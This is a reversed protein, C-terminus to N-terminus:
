LAEGTATGSMDKFEQKIKVFVVMSAQQLLSSLKTKEEAPITTWNKASMGSELAVKWTRVGYKYGVGAFPNDFGADFQVIEFPSTKRRASWQISTLFYGQEKLRKFEASTHLSTGRLAIDKVVGKIEEEIAKKENAAEELLDADELEPQNKLDVQVHTVDELAFGPVSKILEQFFKTRLEFNNIFSLDVEEVKIQLKKEARAREILNEVILNVKENSPYILVTEGNRVKFELSAERHQRQRLRTRTLDVEDYKVKLSFDTTGNNSWSVKEGEEEAEVKYLAAISRFEELSLETKLYKFTKKDSRSSKEFEGQIRAIEDFGFGLSSIDSCLRQRDTQPSYFIGRAKGIGLLASASFHQPASVLADYIEKDTVCYLPAAKAV